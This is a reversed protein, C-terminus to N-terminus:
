GAPEGATAPDVSLTDAEQLEAQRAALAALDYPWRASGCALCSVFHLAGTDQWVLHVAPHRVQGGTPVGVPDGDPDRVVEGTEDVVVWARECDMCKTGRPLQIRPPVVGLATKARHVWGDVRGAWGAQENPRGMTISNIARLEAPIDRWMEVVTSDPRSQVLSRPEDGLVRSRVIPQRGATRLRQECASRVEHTLALVDTSVPPRSRPVAAGARVTNGLMNGVLQDWLSPLRVPKSKPDDPDGPVSRAGTLEDILGLLDAGTLQKRKPVAATTM